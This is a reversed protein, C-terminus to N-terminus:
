RLCPLVLRCVVGQKVSSTITLQGQYKHAIEQAISLGLGTGNIHSHEPLRYFREGLRKLHKSAILGKNKVELILTPAAGKTQTLTIEIPNDKEGYKIANDILNEFLHTIDLPVAKMFIHTHPISIQLPKGEQKARLKLRQCISLLARNISVKQVKGIHQEVRSLTLLDQVLQTMYTIQGHMMYLFKQQAVPDNQASGKLTEVLGLLVTLPTKLEHSANIFFARQTEEFQKLSSIDHLMLVFCAGSQTRAPLKEIVARFTLKRKDTFVLDRVPTDDSSLNKLAQKLKPSTLIKLVSKGIISLSFLQFAALNAQVVIHKEDLMLLPIPLHELTAADSLTQAELQSTKATWTNKIENFTQVIRLADPRRKFFSLFETDDLGLAEKRLYTLLGGWEKAYHRSIFFTAVFTICFFIIAWMPHLLKFSVLIFFLVSVPLMIAWIHSRTRALKQRRKRKKLTKNM